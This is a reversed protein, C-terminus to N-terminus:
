AKIIEPKQRPKVTPINVIEVTDSFGKTFLNKLFVFIM